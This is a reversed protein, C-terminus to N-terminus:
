VLARVEKEIKELIVQKFPMLFIGVNLDLNLDGEAFVIKLEFGKGQAVIQDHGPLYEIKPNINYKSFLSPTIYSKIKGFAESKDKVTKYPVKM